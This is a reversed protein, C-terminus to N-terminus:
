GWQALLFDVCLSSKQGFVCLAPTALGLSLAGHGMEMTTVKRWQGEEQTSPAGAARERTKGRMERGQSRGQGTVCLAWSNNVARKVEKVM